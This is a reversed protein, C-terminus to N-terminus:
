ICTLLSTKMSDLTKSARAQNTKSQFIQEERERLDGEVVLQVLLLLRLPEELDEVVAHAQSLLLDPGGHRDVHKLEAGSFAVVVTFDAADSIFFTSPFCRFRFLESCSCQVSPRPGQVHGLLRLFPSTNLEPCSCHLGFMIKNVTINGGHTAMLDLDACLRLCHRLMFGRHDKDSQQGRHLSNNGTGATVHTPWTVAWM